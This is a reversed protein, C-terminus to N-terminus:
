TCAYIFHYQTKRIRLHKNRCEGTIQCSYYKEGSSHLGENQNSLPKYQFLAQFQNNQREVSMIEQNRKVALLIIQKQMFIEESQVGEEFQM